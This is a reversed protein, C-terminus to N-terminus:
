LLTELTQKFTAQDDNARKYDGVRKLERLLHIPRRLAKGGEVHNYANWFDSVLVGTWDNNFFRKIVDSGRSDVIFYYTEKQTTLSRVVGTQRRRALRNRRRTFGRFPQM